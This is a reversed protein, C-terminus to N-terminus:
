RRAPVVDMLNLIMNFFTWTKLNQTVDSKPIVRLDRQVHDVDESPQDSSILIYDTYFPSSVKGLQWKPMWLLQMKIWIAHARGLVTRSIIHISNWIPRRERSWSAMIRVECTTYFTGSSGSPLWNTKVDRATFMFGQRYRYKSKLSRRLLVFARM